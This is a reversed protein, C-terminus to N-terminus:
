TGSVCIPAGQYPGRRIEAIVYRGTQEALVLGPLGGRTLLIRDLDTLSWVCVTRDDAASVLFRGDDSFALSRVTGTHGSLQRVREGSLGNYLWLTPGVGPENLAVAVIPVRGGPRTSPPAARYDTVRVVGPTNAPIEPNLVIGPGVPKQNEVIWLSGPIVRGTTGDQRPPDLRAQWAGARPDIAELRGCPQRVAPEHLRLGGRGARGRPNSRGAQGEPSRRLWLGWDPGKRAFTAHGIREAKRAGLREPETRQDLLDAVSYVLIENGPDGVVALRTGDPSSAAFPQVKPGTWLSAGGQGLRVDRTRPRHAPAPLHRREPRRAPRAPAVGRGRHGGPRAPGGAQSSVLAMAVPLSKIVPSGAPGDGWNLITQRRPSAPVAEDWWALYGEPWRGPAPPRGFHGTLLANQDPLYGLVTSRGSFADPVSRAPAGSNDWVLLSPDTWTAAVRVRAPDTPLSWASLWPRYDHFIGDSNRALEKSAAVDWLRLSLRPPKGPEITEPGASLLLPPRDKPTAAFTLAHVAGRHGRLQRCAPPQARLDFVYIVGQATPDALSQRPLVLGFQRFGAAEPLIANGAAALWGGDPSVALRLLVGADGPGIPIRLTSAPDAQLRNTQADRKWVRIMKDWGAEYLTSGDPGFAAASVPGLPGDGELRLVPDNAGAPVAPVPANQATTGTSWGLGLLVSVALLRCPRNM